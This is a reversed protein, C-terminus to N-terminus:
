SAVRAVAAPRAQDRPDVVTAQGLSWLTTATLGIMLAAAAARSSPAGRSRSGLAGGAHARGLGRRRGGAARDVPSEGAAAPHGTRLVRHRVSGLRAPGPDSVAVIIRQGDSLLYTLYHAVLYGVAIPLLGAGLAAVGVLRAVLLAIGVVIALFGTLLVTAGAFGPLGFREFWPGHAVARRLPDSRRRPGRARRTAHEVARRPPRDRLRAAQHTRAPRPCVTGTPRAHRVLRLVDRGQRLWTDRGFQAMALLTLVTYGLSCWGLPTTSPRRSSGSSYRSAPSAGLRAPYHAPAWPTIGARRVLWAGIDFLTAFPNLWARVPAVLASVMALGVWGYVWLFLSSVDADSSGGVIHQVVIWLWAAIGVIRLSARLWRPVARAPGPPRPRAAVDFFMVVAFSLGVAIAAGALYVVLPLPSELRGSLAHASAAAPAALTAVVSTAISFRLPRGSMGAAAQVAALRRARRVWAGPRGAAACRAREHGSGLRHGGTLGIRHADAAHLGVPGVITTDLDGGAGRASTREAPRQCQTPRQCQAPAQPPSRRRRRRGSRSATRAEPSNGTRRRSPPGASRIRGRQSLRCSSRCPGSPTPSRAVSRWGSVQRTSSRSPVARSRDLDQSFQATLVPPVDSIVADPAPDAAVLESHAAASPALCLLALAGLVFPSSRVLPMPFARLVLGAIGASRGTIM